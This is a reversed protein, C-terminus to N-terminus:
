LKLISEMKNAISSYNESSFPVSTMNKLDPSNVTWEPSLNIWPFIFLIFSKGMYVWAFLAIYCGKDGSFFFFFTGIIGYFTIDRSSHHLINKNIHGQMIIIFNIRDDHNSIGCSSLWIMVEQDWCEMNLISNLLLLSINM